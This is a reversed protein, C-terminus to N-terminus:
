SSSTLWTQNSKVPWTREVLPKTSNPQCSKPLALKAFIFMKLAKQDAVLSILINKARASIIFSMKRCYLLQISHCHQPRAFLAVVCVIYCQKSNARLHTFPFPIYFIQTDKIYMSFILGHIEGSVSGETNFFWCCRSEHTYRQSLNSKSKITSLLQATSLCQLLM